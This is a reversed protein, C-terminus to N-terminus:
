RSCERTQPLALSLSLSITRLLSLSSCLNLLLRLYNDGEGGAAEDKRSGWGCREGRNKKNRKGKRKKVEVGVWGGGWKSFSLMTSGRRRSEGSCPFSPALPLLSSLSLSVSQDILSIRIFPLPAFSHRLVFPCKPPIKNFKKQGGEAAQRQPKERRQEAADLLSEHELRQGPFHSCGVAPVVATNKM